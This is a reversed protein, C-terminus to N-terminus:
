EKSLTFTFALQKTKSDYQLDFKGNHNLIIKKCSNLKLDLDPYDAVPVGQEISKKTSNFLKRKLKSAICSVLLVWHSDTEESSLTLAQDQTVSIDGLYFCLEKILLSLQSEIALIGPLINYKLKLQYNDLLEKSLKKALKNLNLNSFKGGANILKYHQSIKGLHTNVENINTLIKVKVEDEGKGLKDVLKQMAELHSSIYKSSNQNLQFLESNLQNKAKEYVYEDTIDSVIACYMTESIGQDNTISIPSVHNRCWKEGQDSLLFQKEFSIFPFDFNVLSRFEASINTSNASDNSSIYSSGILDKPTAEVLRAFGASVETIIGESDLIVIGIPAHEFINELQKQKSEIILRDVIKGHALSVSCIVREERTNDNREAFGNIEFWKYGDKKIKLRVLCSFSSSNKLATNVEDLYVDINDPHMLSLFHKYGQQYTKDSYGLLSKYEDSWWTTGEKINLCEWLGTKKSTLALRYREESFKLENEKDVIETIDQFVNLCEIPNGKEDRAHIKSVVSLWKKEGSLKDRMQIKSVVNEGKSRMVDKFHKRALEQGEETYLSTLDFDYLIEDKTVGILGQPNGQVFNTRKDTLDYISLLSPAKDTLEDLTNYLTKLEISQNKLNNINIFNATVGTVIKFSNKYPFVEIWYWSGNPHKVEIQIKEGKAKVDEAIEALRTGLISIGSYHTISRGLDEERLKFHQEIEPTYKRICNNDDLFLTGVQINSFLNEMDTNLVILDTNKSQLEANVSHLEENVSQLEENTSQLEENAALLEENTAQMEENSTELEEITLQLNEKTERLSEKLLGVEEASLISEQKGEITPLAIKAAELFTILYTNSYYNTISIHEIVIKLSLNAGKVQIRIEKTVEPLTEKNMKRIGSQISILVNDPLIKALSNSFGEEPIDIYRKLKGRAHIINLNEDVCVTASKYEDLIKNHFAKSVIEDITLTKRRGVVKSQLVPDLKWNKLDNPLFSTSGRNQYIRTKSDITRFSKDFIGPTESKGLLLYGEPKLAYKVSNMAKTKFDKDLYILLNRCSVLDMKSFPPNVVVNHKSYVVNQRIHQAIKFGEKVKEFYRLLLENDISEVDPQSYVGKSALYIANEDIDTAYIKYDIRKDINRMHEELMIALSYVEEGTSCAIVWFKINQNTQIAENIINPIINLRLNEFVETDRFFTTVGILYEHALAVVESQDLYLLDIYEEISKCKKINLRKATRRLITPMKYGFFDMETNDKVIKLIRHIVEMKHSLDTGSVLYNFQPNKAYQIIEGIMDEPHLIYDALNHSIVSKPMGDFGSSEPSQVFVSGGVEKIAKAGKTGDSGTGSLIIGIALHAKEQALSELFIDIPFNLQKTPPRNLLVLKGEKITINKKGPILYVHNPEVVVQNNAEAVPMNTYKAMLEPMLSKYDPSLHQVIVFALGTNDPCEMFFSQLAKLGGASTGIGVIYFYKKEKKTIDEVSADSKGM